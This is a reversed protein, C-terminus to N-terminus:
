YKDFYAEEIGWFGDFHLIFPYLAKANEVLDGITGFKDGTASYTVFYVLNTLCQGLPTLIVLDDINTLIHQKLTGFDVLTFYSHICLTKIQM